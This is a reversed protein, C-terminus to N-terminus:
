VTNSHQQQKVPGLRQPLSDFKTYDACSTIIITHVTRTVALIKRGLIKHRDASKMSDALIPPIAAM